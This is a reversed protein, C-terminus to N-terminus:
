NGEVAVTLQTYGAPIEFLSNELTKAESTLDITYATHQKKIIIKRPLRQIAFADLLEYIPDNFFASLGTLDINENSFYAIASGVNTSITYGDCSQGDITFVDTKSKRHVIVSDKVKADQKTVIYYGKQSLEPHDVCVTIFNKSGDVIIKFNGDPGNSQMSIANGKIYFDFTTTNGNEIKKCHIVGEFAFVPLSFIAIFLIYIYKM